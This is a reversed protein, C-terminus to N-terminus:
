QRTTGRKRVSEGDADYDLGGVIEEGFSVNCGAGNIETHTGPGSTVEFTFGNAWAGSFNDDWAIFLPATRPGAARTCTRRTRARPCSRPGPATSRRVPWCRPPETTTWPGRDARHRRLSRPDFGAAAHHARRQRSACHHRLERPGRDPQDGPARRRRILYVAGRHTEGLESVQDAGVVIDAIGDGTVDGTRMWIGFRDLEADGLLTVIELGAPPTRLDVEALTAAHSCCRRAVWSSPSRAGAGIRGAAPTHNQRAILLDGLGDGTVDDMWLESGCAESTDDGIITLVDAQTIATDFSGKLTGDGFVLYAEGAGSRGSPSAMMASFAFDAHGDGDVDQGGAVPVGKKGDGTHGYGRLLGWKTEPHAALDVVFPNALAPGSLLLSFLLLCRAAHQM